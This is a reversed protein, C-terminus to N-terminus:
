MSTKTYWFNSQSNLHEANIFEWTLLFFRCYFLCGSFVTKKWLNIFLVIRKKQSKTKTYVHVYRTKTYVHVYRSFHLEICWVELRLLFITMKKFWLLNLSRIYYHDTKIWLWAILFIFYSVPTIWLNIENFNIDSINEIDM